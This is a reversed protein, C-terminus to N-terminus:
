KPIPRQSKSSFVVLSQLPMERERRPEVHMEGVDCGEREGREDSGERERERKCRQGNVQMMAERADNGGRENIEERSVISARNEEEEKKGQIRERDRREICRM